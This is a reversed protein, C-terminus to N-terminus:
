NTTSVEKIDYSLEYSDDCCESYFSSVIRNAVLHGGEDDAGILLIVVKDDGCVSSMDGRRLSKRVAESLVEMVRKREAPSSEGAHDLTMVLMQANKQTRELVRLVFRFINTFDVSRVCYAGSAGDNIEMISEINVPHEARERMVIAALSRIRTLLLQGCIPLRIIDDFGMGLLIEQNEGSCDSTVAAVPINRFREYTQIDAMVTGIAGRCYEESVVLIDCSKIRNIDSAITYEFEGGISNGWFEYRNASDIIGVKM